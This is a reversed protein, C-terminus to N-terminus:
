WTDNKVCEIAGFTEPETIKLEYILNEMMKFTEMRTEACGSLLHEDLLEFIRHTFNKSGITSYINHKKM